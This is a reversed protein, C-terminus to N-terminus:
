YDLDSTLFRKETLPWMTFIKSKAPQRIETVAVGSQGSLALAAMSLTYIISYSHELLVKTVFVTLPCVQGTTWLNRIELSPLYYTFFFFFFFVLSRGVCVLCVLFM